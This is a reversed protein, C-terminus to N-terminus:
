IIKIYVYFDFLHNYQIGLYKEEKENESLTNYNLLTNLQFINFYM